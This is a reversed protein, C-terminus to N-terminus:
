RRGALNDIAEAAPSEPWIPQPAATYGAHALEGQFFAVESAMFALKTWLRFLLYVQGVLLALWTPASASPATEFWLVLVVSLAIANVLYLSAARFPRRRLFRISAALAGIMSRRDEVVARVKAFDAVLSVLMLALLFIGYLAARLEIARREETMDRTWRDYLNGLVYPHLWRFLAWYVLGVIVALRLFRLFYAGCASFFAAARIPRARAFRDLIGGSLFVWLGIYAAVVAALAPNLSENDVFRSLTAMTGGFGLIEYTFTRGVGQARQAFEAAWGANWGSAAQDAQLSPGLHEDLMGRLVFAPPLAMLFTAILMGLTVAPARLVRRWGEVFAAVVPTRRRISPRVKLDTRKPRAQLGSGGDSTAIEPSSAM